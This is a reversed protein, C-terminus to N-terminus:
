TVAVFPTTIVYPQGDAIVVTGLADEFGIIMDDTTNCLIAGCISINAGSPTFSISSWTVLGRNNTDDQSVAIGSLTIGTGKTYGGATTVESASIDAYVKHAARDFTFGPQMLFATFTKGVYTNLMSYKFVNSMQSAM